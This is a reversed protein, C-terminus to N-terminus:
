IYVFVSVCTASLINQFVSIMLIRTYVKKGNLSGVSGWNISSRSQVSSRRKEKQERLGSKDWTRWKPATAGIKEAGNGFTSMIGQWAAHMLQDKSSHAAFHDAKLWLWISHRTYPFNFEAEPWRKCSKRCKWVWKNNWLFLFKSFFNKELRRRWGKKEQLGVASNLWEFVISWPM